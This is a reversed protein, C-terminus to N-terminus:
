SKSNHARVYISINKFIDSQSGGDTALLDVDQVRQKQRKRRMFDGLDGFRSAGYTDSALYEGTPVVLDHRRGPEPDPPPPSPSRPRKNTMAKLKQRADIEAELIASDFSAPLEIEEIDYQTEDADLIEPTSMHSLTPPEHGIPPPRRACNCSWILKQYLCCIIAALVIPHPIALSSNLTLVDSDLATITPGSYVAKVVDM